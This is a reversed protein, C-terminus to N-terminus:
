KKSKKRKKSEPNVELTMPNLDLVLQEYKAVQRGKLFKKVSNDRKVAFRMAHSNIYKRSEIKEVKLAKSQRLALKEQVKMIDKSYMTFASFCAEQQKDTFKLGKNLYEVAIATAKKMDKAGKKVAMNNQSFSFSVTLFFVFALLIRNKM